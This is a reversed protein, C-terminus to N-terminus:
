NSYKIYYIKLFFIISLFLKLPKLFLRQSNCSVGVRGNAVGIKSLRYHFVYYIFDNAVGVKKSAVAVQFTISVGAGLKQMSFLGINGKMVFLSFFTFNFPIAHGHKLQFMIKLRSSSYFILSCNEPVGYRFLSSVQAYFSESFPNLLSEQTHVVLSSIM